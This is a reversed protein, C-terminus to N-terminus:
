RQWTNKSRVVGPWITTTVIWDLKMSWQREKIWSCWAYKLNVRFSPRFLAKWVQCIFQPEYCKLWNIVSLTRARVIFILSSHIFMVFSPGFKIWLTVKPSANFRKYNSGVSKLQSVWKHVRLKTEMKRLMGRHVCSKTYQVKKTRGNTQRTPSSWLKCGLLRSCLMIVRLVSGSGKMAPLYLCVLYGVIDDADYDDDDESSDNADAKDDEFTPEGTGHNNRCRGVSKWLGFPGEHNWNLLPWSDQESIIRRSACVSTPM